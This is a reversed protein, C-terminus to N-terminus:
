EKTFTFGQRKAESWTALQLWPQAKIGKHKVKTAFIVNGGPGIWALAKSHTPVIPAARSKTGDHVFMAYPSLYEVGGVVSEGTVIIPTITRSKKLASTRGVPVKGDAKAAVGQQMKRVARYAPGQPGSLFSKM